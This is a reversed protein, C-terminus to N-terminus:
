CSRWRARPPGRRDPRQGSGRDLRASSRRSARHPWRRRRARTWEISSDTVPRSRASTSPTRFARSHPLRSSGFRLFGQRRRGSPESGKPVSTTRSTGRCNGLSPARLGTQLLSGRIQVQVGGAPLDGSRGLGPLGHLPDVGDRLVALTTGDFDMQRGLNAFASELRLLSHVQFYTETSPCAPTTVPFAFGADVATSM